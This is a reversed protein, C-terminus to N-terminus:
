SRRRRQVIVGVVLAAIGIGALITLVDLDPTNLNQCTQSKPILQGNCVQTGEPPAAITIGFKVGGSRYGTKNATITVNIPTDIGVTKASFTVAAVDSSPGHDPTPTLKSPDAVNITVNADGILARDQDKVSMQMPLSSGSSVRDGLLLDLRVSLFKIGLAFVEILRTRSTSEPFSPHSAVASLIVTQNGANVQQANFTAAVQGNINTTGVCYRQRVCGTGLTLTGLTPVSINVSAGSLAVGQDDLVTVTVPLTSNSKTASETAISERLVKTSPPHIGQLSWFNWISGSSVTWNVFRDQRYGEINTRYYLVEYPRVDSIIQQATFILERRHTRNLEARSAEITQDFTADNFGTYDQGSAANSSDFFDFLYDPDTGGIRWGLIFMDFTHANVNAVITGFSTPRSGVNIGVRRMADAIILGASARVSDYAAEPTLIEFYNRGIKPLTRCNQATDKSCPAAGNPKPGIGHAVAQPSDLIANAQALDYQSPRINPNYWFTNAPSIVGNGVVGFNQLLSQVILKKDVVYSVAQRFELGWDQTPDNNKYGFPADRMNYAMYFFGPEANSQVAIEPVQLLEPVFEAPVNWHYFDIIGSQLAIVGLQTNTFVKFTIGDIIPKKLVAALKADYPRTPDSPNAGTYYGGYRVVDAEINKQWSSFQFPGSGIVDADKLNWEEASAYDYPHSGAVIETADIGKGWKSAVNTGCAHIGHADAVAVPLWIACGYDVPPNTPVSPDEHRGGGTLSWETMPFMVPYLTGTYFLAFPQNLTFHIAWRLNNNQGGYMNAEGEWNRQYGNSANNDLDAIAINLQRGCSDYSDAPTCFLVRLGTNFRPNMANLHYSFLVDWIDMQSGDHWKVGNFDYYITVNLQDKAADKRWTNYEAAEFIGNENVDVGKAIYALPQDIKPDGQLVSDYVRYQVDSTWVDNAIAPLPNRTKMEDQGGVKLTYQGARTGTPTNATGAFSAQPIGSLVLMVVLGVVASAAVAQVRVFGM